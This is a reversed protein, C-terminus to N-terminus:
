DSDCQRAITDVERQGQKTLRRGGKIDNKTVLGMKEFQQLVYRVIKGSAKAAHGPASGRRQKSGYFKRFAGVGSDPRVYLHRLVSAARVYIWDVDYPALEKAKGTKVYDAWKPYELKGSQKLHRAYCTIFKDAPVDKITHVVTPFGTQYLSALNGVAVTFTEEVPEAAPADM